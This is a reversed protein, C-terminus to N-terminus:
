WIGLVKWWLPGLTMWVMLSTVSVAFGVKWWVAQTVYGAGLAAGLAM